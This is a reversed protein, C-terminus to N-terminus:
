KKKFIATLINSNEDLPKRITDELNSSSILKFGIEAMFSSLSNLNFHWLHEDPRRHKWKLFWEDSFYHCEPVSIYIYNTKLKKIEYIDEFHELVDFFCVVDYEQDYIDNTKTCNEPLPYDNVEFGFCNNIKNRAAKLFDGNGYGVDLINQPTKNISGLLYGLRLYSMYASLENYKDYSNKIYNVDYIRKQNIFNKQKILGNELIEYNDLM